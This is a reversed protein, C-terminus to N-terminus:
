IVVLEVSPQALVALFDLHIPLALAVLLRQVQLELPEMLCRVVQVLALVLVGAEVAAM